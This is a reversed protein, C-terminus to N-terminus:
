NGVIENTSDPKITLPRFHYTENLTLERETKGKNNKTVQKILTFTTDNVIQGTTQELPSCGMFTPPWNEFTLETGKVFFVGWGYRVKGYGSTKDDIFSQVLAAAGTSDTGGPLMVVGNNYFIMVTQRTPLDAYYYGDTRLEPGSYAVKSSLQGDHCLGLKRCSQLGLLAIAIVIIHSKVSRM